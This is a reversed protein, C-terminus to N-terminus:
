RQKIMFMTQRFISYFVRMAKMCTKMGVLEKTSNETFFQPEKNVAIRKYWDFEFCQIFINDRM